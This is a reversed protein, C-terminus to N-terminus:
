YYGNCRLFEDSRMTFYVRSFGYCDNINLYYSWFNMVDTTSVSIIWLICKKVYAFISSFFFFSAGNAHINRLWWGFYIESTLDFVTGFVIDINANYFMALFIGTVIQSILFYLSFFGYNWWYSFNAPSKYYLGTIKALYLLLSRLWLRMLKEHPTVVFLSLTIYIM